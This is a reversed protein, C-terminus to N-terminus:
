QINLFVSNTMLLSTQEAVFSCFILANGAGTLTPPLVVNVQDLGM